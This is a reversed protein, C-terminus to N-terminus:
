RWISMAVLGAGIAATIMILLTVLIFVLARRDKVPESQGQLASIFARRVIPPPLFPPTRIAIMSPSAIWNARPPTPVSVQVVPLVPMVVPVVQHRAAHELADAAADDEEAFVDGRHAHAHVHAHAHAHQISAQLRQSSPRAPTAAATIVSAPGPATETDDDEDAALTEARQRIAVAL